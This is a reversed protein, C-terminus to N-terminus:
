HCWSMHICVNEHWPKGVIYGKPRLVTDDKWNSENVSSKLAFLPFPGFIGPVQFMIQNFEYIVSFLVVQINKQPFIKVMSVSMM